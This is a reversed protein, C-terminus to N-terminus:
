NRNSLLRDKLSLVRGDNDAIHLVKYSREPLELAATLRNKQNWPRSFGVTVIWSERQEDFEIEELGVNIIGEESFLDEVYNRATQAVAKLHM